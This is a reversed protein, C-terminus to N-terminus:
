FFHETGIPLVGTTPYPATPQGTHHINSGHTYFYWGVGNMYNCIITQKLASNAVGIMCDQGKDIRVNWNYKGKKSVDITQQTLGTM